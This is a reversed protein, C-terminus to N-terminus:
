AAQRLALHGLKGSEVRLPDALGLPALEVRPVAAELADEGAHTDGEGSQVPRLLKDGIRHAFGGLRDVSGVKRGLFCVLRSDPERLFSALRNACQQRDNM